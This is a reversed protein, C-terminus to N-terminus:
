APIARPDASHTVRRCIYVGPLVCLLAASLASAAPFPLLTLFTDPLYGQVWDQHTAALAALGAMLSAPATTCAFRIAQECLTPNAGQRRLVRRALWFWVVLLLTIGLLEIGFTRPVVWWLVVGRKRKERGIASLSCEISFRVGPDDRIAGALAHVTSTEQAPQHMGAVGLAMAAGARIEADDDQLAVLLAPIGEVIAEQSLMLGTLAATRVEGREDGLSKILLPVGSKRKTELPLRYYTREAEDRVRDRPDALADILAPLGDSGSNAASGVAAIADILAPLRSIEFPEESRHAASGM